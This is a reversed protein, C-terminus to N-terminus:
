KPLPIRPQSIDELSRGYALRPHMKEMSSQNPIVMPGPISHSLLTFLAPSYALLYIEEMAEPFHRAEM